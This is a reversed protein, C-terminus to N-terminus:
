RGGSLEVEVQASLGPRLRQMRGSRPFAPHAGARAARHAHFQRHRPEFPLLSFESGSAPAFSEVEGDFTKGPLADFSVRVRQGALMRATQTEKFNALIYITNMPVVTM